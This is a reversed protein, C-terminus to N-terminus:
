ICVDGDLPEDVSAFGLLPSPRGHLVSPSTCLSGWDWGQGDLWVVSSCKGVACGPSAFGQILSREVLSKM